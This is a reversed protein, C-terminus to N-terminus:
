LSFYFCVQSNEGHKDICSKLQFMLTGIKLFEFLKGIQKWRKSVFSNESLNWVTMKQEATM